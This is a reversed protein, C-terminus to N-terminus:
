LLSYLFTSQCRCKPKVAAALLGHSFLALLLLFFTAAVKKKRHFRGREIYITKKSCRNTNTYQRRKEKQVKTKKKKVREKTRNETYREEDTRQRGKKKKHTHVHSYTCKRRLLRMDFYCIAQLKVIKYHSYRSCGKQEPLPLTLTLSILTACDSLLVNRCIAYQSQDPRTPRLQASTAVYNHALSKSKFFAFLYLLAFGLPLHESVKNPM